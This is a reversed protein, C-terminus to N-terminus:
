LLALGCICKALHDVDKFYSLVFFRGIFWKQSVDMPVSLDLQLLIGHGSTLLTVLQVEMFISSIRLVCAELNISGGAYVSRVLMLSTKSCSSQASDFQM